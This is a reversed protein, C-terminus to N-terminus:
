PALSVKQAVSPDALRAASAHPCFLGGFTIQGSCSSTARIFDGCQLNSASGAVAATDADWFNKVFQRDAALGSM